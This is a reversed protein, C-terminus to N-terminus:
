GEIRRLLLPPQELRQDGAKGSLRFGLRQQHNDLIQVPAIRAAEIKQEVQQVRAAGRPGSARRPRPSAACSRQGGAGRPLGDAGIIASGHTHQGVVYSACEDGLRLDDLLQRRARRECANGPRHDVLPIGLVRAPTLALRGLQQPAVAGNRGSRDTPQAVILKVQGRGVRQVSTRGHGCLEPDLVVREGVGMTMKGAHLRCQASQSVLEQYSRRTDTISLM